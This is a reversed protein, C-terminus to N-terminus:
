YPGNVEGIAIASRTKLPLVVLDGPQIRDRFAWVQGTWNTLRNVSDDPYTEKMLQALSERSKVASLDPLEDWGIVVIGKQLATEEHEGHGGARVLWIAM